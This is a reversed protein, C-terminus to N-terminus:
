QRAPARALRAELDKIHARLAHADADLAKYTQTLNGLGATEALSAAHADAAGANPSTEAIFKAQKRAYDFALWLVEGATQRDDAFFLTEDPDRVIQAEVGLHGYWKIVDSLYSIVTQADPAPPAASVNPSAPSSASAPQPAAAAPAAPPASSAQASAAPKPSQAFAPAPNAGPFGAIAISLAIAILGAIPLRMGASLISTKGHPRMAILDSDPLRM